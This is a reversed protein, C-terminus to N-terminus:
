LYRAHSPLPLSSLRLVYVPLYRLSAPSVPVHLVSGNIDKDEGLAAMLNTRRRHKWM